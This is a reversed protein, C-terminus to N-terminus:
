REERLIEANLEDVLEDTERGTCGAQAAVEQLTGWVPEGCVLCPIKRRILFKVAVPYEGVLEEITINKEIRVTRTRPGSKV